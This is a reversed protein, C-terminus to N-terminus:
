EVRLLGPLRPSIALMDPGHGHRSGEPLTVASHIDVPVVLPRQIAYAFM